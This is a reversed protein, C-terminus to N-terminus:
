EFGCQNFWKRAISARTRHFGSFVNGWTVVSLVLAEKHCCLLIRAQARFLLLDTWMFYCKAASLLELVSKSACSVPIYLIVQPQHSIYPQRENRTSLLVRDTFDSQHKEARCRSIKWM